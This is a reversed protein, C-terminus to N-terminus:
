RSSLGPRRGRHSASRWPRRVHSGAKGQVLRQIDDGVLEARWGQLLRADSDGRLLAVLDARTALLSTDVRQKRALDAMWASVLAVAPRLPRDLDEGDPAPPRHREAPRRRRCRPDGQGPQGQQPTGRGRAGARSRAPNEAPTPRDSCQWIPCSRACGARRSVDGPTRAVGVGSQGCWPGHNLMRVDKIRLWAQSPDTGRCRGSASSRAPRPSGSRAAWSPSSSTSSIRSLWCTTSTPPRTTSNSPRFRDACGTPSGTARPRPSGCSPWSCRSWRRRATARPFRLGAAHRVAPRTGSRLRPDLRRPRAPRRALVAVADSAFLRRLALLDVALPDVLATEGDLRQSSCSPSSPSTRANATSSPTSRTARSGGGLSRHAGRVRGSRRDLSSERLSIGTSPERGSTIWAM